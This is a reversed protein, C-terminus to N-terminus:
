TKRNYVFCQNLPLKLKLQKVASKGFGTVMVSSIAHPIADCHTYQTGPHRRRCGTLGLFRVGPSGPQVRDQLAVTHGGKQRGPGDVQDEGIRGVIQLEAAVQGAPGTSPRRAHVVVPVLEVAELGIVGEGAAQSSSHAADQLRVARDPHDAGIVVDEADARDQLIQAEPDLVVHDPQLRVRHRIEAALAEGIGV